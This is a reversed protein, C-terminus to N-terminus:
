QHSPDIFFSDVVKLGHYNLWDYVLLTLKKMREKTENMPSPTWDDAPEFHLYMIAGLREKKPKFM